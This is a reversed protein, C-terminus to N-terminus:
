VHAVNTVCAGGGMRDPVTYFSSRNSDSKSESVISAKGLQEEDVTFNTQTGSLVICQVMHDPLPQHFGEVNILFGFFLRMKNTKKGGGPKLTSVRHIIKFPSGHPGLPSDSQDAFIAKAQSLNESPSVNGGFFCTAEESGPAYVQRPFVQKPFVWQSYIVQFHRASVYSFVSREVRSKIWLGGVGSGAVEQTQEVELVQPLLELVQTQIEELVQPPM